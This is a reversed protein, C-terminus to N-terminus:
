DYKVLNEKFWKDTEELSYYVKGKGNFQFYNPPLKLYRQKQFWAKSYGYRQSAEKDTMYKVGLIDKM